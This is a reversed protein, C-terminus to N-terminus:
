SAEGREEFKEEVFGRLLSCLSVDGIIQELTEPIPRGIDGALAQAEALLEGVRVKRAALYRRWKAATWEHEDGAGDFVDDDVTPSSAPPAPIVEDPKVAEGVAEPKGLGIEEREEATLSAALEADEEAALEAREAELNEAEEGDLDPDATEPAQEATERESEDGAGSEREEAEPPEQPERAAEAPPRLRWGADLKVLALEGRRIKVLMLFLTSAEEGTVDKASTVSGTERKCTIAEILHARDVGLENCKMAIAQARAVDGKTEGGPPESDGGLPPEFPKGPLPPSAPPTSAEEVEPAHGFAKPAAPLEPRGGTDLAPRPEVGLLTPMGGGDLVGLAELTPGLAGRFSIAPVYFKKRVVGPRRAGEREVLRLDAPILAGRRTAVECLAAAHGLETAAYYGHSELRWVGLDAIAPIMVNLRSTPKCAAPPNKAAEVAREQPDEPCSCAKDVLVQRRGDCRKVCGGGTWQEYWQSLVEGPPIVVDLADVEVIVEFEQAGDNEWPKVEGGFHEAAQEILHQWPSTLRFRPLKVPREIPKGKNPGSKYVKDTAVKVGTRIRGLERFRTQIDVLPM